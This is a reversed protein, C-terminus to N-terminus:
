RAQYVGDTNKIVETFTHGLCTANSSNVSQVTIPEPLPFTLDPLGSGKGKFIVKAPKPNDVSGAKLIVRSLVSGGKLQYGKDRTPSWLGDSAPVSMLLSGAGYVCIGEVTGGLVPDGFDAQLHTNWDEGKFKFLLKRKDSSRNLYTLKVKSADECVSAPTEACKLTAARCVAKPCALNWKSAHTSLVAVQADGDPLTERALVCPDPVAEGSQDTCPPVAVGNRPIELNNANTGIPLLSVDITYVLVLPRSQPTTGSTAGDGAAINEPAEVDIRTGFFSLNPDGPSPQGSSLHISVYGANPTTIALEIPSAPTAGDSEIDTTLTGYSELTGAVYKEFVSCDAACGDGDATNGDDCQECGPTLTGNGCTPPTGRCEGSRCEDGLTCVVQDDCATGDLAPPHACAGAGDCEDARCANDDSSCPIGLAEPLCSGPGAGVCDWCEEVECASSCGDGAVTNGDDCGEDSELSGNGCTVAFITIGPNPYTLTVYVHRGDPSVAPAVTGLVDELGPDGEAGGQHQERRTIAGTSPDVLSVSVFRDWAVGFLHTANVGMELEAPQAFGGVLPEVESFTLTGNSANRKLTTIVGDGWSAVTFFTGDPSLTMGAPRYFGLIGDEGQKVRGLYAIGGTSPDRDFISVASEEFATVYLHEGDPSVIIRAYWSAHTVPPSFEADVFTLKGFDPSAPNDDRAFAAVSSPQHANFLDGSAASYVHRGDPSVVVENTRALGVNPGEGEVVQQIQTLAGTVQDISCVVIRGSTTGENAGLYLHRGDSSVAGRWWTAPATSEVEILTLSGSVAERAFAALTATPGPGSNTYVFRGDPTIEIGDGGYGSEVEVFRLIPAAAGAACVGGGLVCGIAMVVAIVRTRLAVAM